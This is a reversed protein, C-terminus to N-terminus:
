PRVVNPDAAAGIALAALTL